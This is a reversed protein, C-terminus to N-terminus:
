YKCISFLKGLIKNMNKKNIIRRGNQILIKRLKYNKNISNFNKYFSKEINNNNIILNANFFNLIKANIKQDRDQPLCIAPIGLYISDFMVLGGSVISLDSKNLYKYFEKKKFLTVKLKGYSNVKKYKVNSPIFLNIKLDNKKLLDIIKKTYNNKDWGGLNLFVKNIKKNLIKKKSFKIKEYSPLILNEFISRNKKRSRLNILSNIRLDFVKHKSKDDLAIIKKFYKKLKLIKKKNSFVMRDFILIEASNKKLIDIENKSNEKLNRDKYRVFDFKYEKLIESAIKYKKDSKIIFRIQQDSINLKKKLIKALFICRFLHGTGIKKYKGADCRFLIKIKM